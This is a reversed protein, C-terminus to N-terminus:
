EENPGLLDVEDFTTVEIKPAEIVKETEKLETEESNSSSAKELEESIENPNLKDEYLPNNFSSPKEKEETVVDIDVIGDEERKQNDFLAFIFQSPPFQRSRIIAM